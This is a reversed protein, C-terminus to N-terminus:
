EKNGSKAKGVMWVINAAGLYKRLAATADQATVAAIRADYRAIWDFDRNNHMIQSLRAAYLREENAYRQRDQRWTKRAQEIEQDTFGDKLATDLVKQLAALAVEAKESSASASLVLSTRPEFMSGALQAGASYALGGTERLSNWIRSDTNGGLINVAIRLAPFDDQQDTIPLLTMGSLNANPHNGMAVTVPATDVQEPAPMEAIRRYPIASVPLQGIKEGFAQADQPTFEGVLVLNAHSLGMFEQQCSKVQQYRLARMDALEREISHSKYPHHEPYNDFRLEVTSSALTAPDKLSAELGAIAAAKLRDFEAEPMLPKSWVSLLIDFAAAINKRPANIAIRGLGIDWNARLAELRADLQDRNMGGGGYAMLASAINCALMKDRLAEENGFDNSLILWAMDGQTKRSILGIKGDKGLPFTQTARALDSANQPLPDSQGAVSPWDKGAFREQGAAPKPLEPAVPNAADHLLVDSRNTPILWKRLASNAEDLTIERVVDHQWFVLRWDGAVEADSLLESFAEHANGIRIFANNEEQKARELQEASVGKAAAAEINAALNRSLKEVDDTKNGTADAVLLGAQPKDFSSCSAANASKQELVLERRLSGWDASCIASSALSLAITQRDFEGPIKWGSMAATRGAPLFVESRNTAAQPSERTWSGIRPGPPNAAKAFLSGALSLVRKQDFNGSIVLFANDPRYHKDHFAQLADFPADEIDSRAGITPRGYGHWFFSERLLARLMVSGPSSDNQELENRVVTMESTLDARTFRARIFRDAEIRIAEDVTDPASSVIEFFSTRDATTNANWRAGLRTLDTKINDRPGAEKFLMHELLHAMGTEGYGEYLSGTKVVLEVKVDPASPYRALIIKFGNPLRYSSIGAATADLELVPPPTATSPKAHSVASAPFSSFCLLLLINLLWFRKM